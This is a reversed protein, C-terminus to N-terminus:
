LDETKIIIPLTFQTAVPIGRKYAPAVPQLSDISERLWQNLFPFEKELVDTIKISNVMLKGENDISFSLTVTDNLHRVATATHKGFAQRLHNALTTEFCDKQQAKETSNECNTFSPYQDVEKWDIAKLEEQYFTESGIKETEFFQCSCTLFLLLLIKFHQM